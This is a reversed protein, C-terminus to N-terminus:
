CCGCEHCERAPPPATWLMLLRGESKLGRVFTHFRLSSRSARPSPAATSRAIALNTRQDNPESLTEGIPFFGEPGFAKQSCLHNVTTPEPSAIKAASKKNARASINDLFGPDHRCALRRATCLEIRRERREVQTSCLSCVWVFQLSRSCM